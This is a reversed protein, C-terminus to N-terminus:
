HSSNLRTSKRDGDRLARVAVDLARRMDGSLPDGDSWQPVAVRPRRPVGGLSVAADLCALDVGDAGARAQYAQGCVEAPEAVPGIGDLSAALRRGGSRM